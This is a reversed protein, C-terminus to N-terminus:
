EGITIPEYREDNLVKLMFEMPDMGIAGVLNAFTSPSQGSVLQVGKRTADAHFTDHRSNANWYVINPLSYGNQEYLERMADTFDHNNDARDIEMDSIVIISKVMEEPPADHILAIDLVLRFAAELDTNNGWDSSDISRIKELLTDGYITKISPMSSFNMWLNHYPGTNREAFYIALAVASEMPFGSMSGSVDAMVMANTGPEVYNPLNKWLEELVPDPESPAEDRYYERYLIQEMNYKVMIDYPYLVGANIKAKGQQLADLYEVRRVPDHRLFANRYLLNARSPVKEYDIQDWQNTSMDAEVIRIYKRLRKVLRKYQYVTLGLKIATKIGLKRTNRSSADASKLWKALLSVPQEMVMNAMDKSFQDKILEWMDNELPTDILSYLDDWRGYFPILRMNEWVAEPHKNALETLCARFVTREGQGIGRIDRIYFMAKTALLPNEEYAEMLLSAAAYPRTRMAGASGFFDLLKEGTTSYAMQGNETIKKGAEIRAANAFNM